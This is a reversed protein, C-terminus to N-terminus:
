RSLANDLNPKTKAVKIQACAHFPIFVVSNGFLNNNDLYNIGYSSNHFKNPETQKQLKNYNKFPNTEKKYFYIIIFSHCMKFGTLM